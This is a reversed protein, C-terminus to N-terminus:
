SINFFFSVRTMCSFSRWLRFISNQNIMRLYQHILKKGRLLNLTALISFLPWLESFLTRLSCYPKQIHLYFLPVASLYQISSKVQEKQSIGVVDMARRTALYEQADSIGVLEYCNSQNLYRFTKPHGM